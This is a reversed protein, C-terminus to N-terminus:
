SKVYYGNDICRGDVKQYRAGICSVARPKTNCGIYTSLVTSSTSYGRHCVHYGASSDPSLWPHWEAICTFYKNTSYYAAKTWYTYHQLCISSAPASFIKLCGVHCLSISDSSSRCSLDPYLDRTSVFALLSIMRNCNVSNTTKAISTGCNRWIKMIVDDFPFMKRTVPGKQPSNVQCRHIGRVFALSASSQHKRQHGGSYVTSCVITLSTIQSAMLSM